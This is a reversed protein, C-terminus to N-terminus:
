GSVKPGLSNILKERIFSGLQDILSETLMEFSSCTHPLGFVRPGPEGPRWASGREEIFILAKLRYNPSYTLFRSPLGKWRLRSEATGLLEGHKRLWM